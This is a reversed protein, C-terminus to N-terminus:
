RRLEALLRDIMDRAQSAYMGGFLNLHNLVHYLQYLDRRVSYGPDVPWVANYADYASEPLRGFLESMALDTERDGYYVAPDYLVPSRKDDFAINGSWLDGHLLSPSPTYDTFFAPLEQCLREGAETLRGGYGHEHALGLQFQLRQDAYFRAWDSDQTNLQPTSGITNDRHWGHREATVGHMRALGEGLEAWDGRGHLTLWEMILFSRDGAVGWTIPRPIRIAQAGTLELLGEAEAAFMEVADSRNLKVFWTGEAGELRYAANISGGGVPSRQRSQFAAGTADAIAADIDTWPM